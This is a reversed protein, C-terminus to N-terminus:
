TEQFCTDRVRIELNALAEASSNGYANMAWEGNFCFLPGDDDDIDNLYAHFFPADPARYVSRVVVGVRYGEQSMTDIYRDVYELPMKSITFM